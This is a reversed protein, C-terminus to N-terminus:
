YRDSKKGFLVADLSFKGAGMFLIASFAVLYSIALEKSSLPDSGHVVFVAVCMAIILPIVTLRTAFGLAVLLACVLEAFVTLGLSVTGGLGLFDMFKPAIGEFNTLKSYGHTMMMLGFGLRLFLSAFNVSSSTTRPALFTNIM